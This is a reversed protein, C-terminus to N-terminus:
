QRVELLGSIKLAESDSMGGDITMIALRELQEDSFRQYWDLPFPLAEDKDTGTEPISTVAVAKEPPRIRDEPVAEDSLAARIWSRIDLGNQYAESPDKGLICPWRIAKSGYTASWFGWAAKAGAEDTDLAVLIQEAHQLAEHTIGDPKAQASGMATVGVLDGAEQHVLWGDLESEVIVITKMGKNWAMASTDSGPILVYRPEGEPRRIRLRFLRGDAFCPIVLGTPLWLQKPKGNGQIEAPLGWGDRDLHLDSPNWGLCANRITEDNLGKGHLFTLAQQGPAQWLTQQAMDLFANAKESWSIAPSATERPHFVPQKARGHPRGTYTRRNPGVGAEHCAAVYSLGRFDRLYQIADGNKGCGRCWYRGGKYEPWVRFRDEGGCSPCPGAWEGGHTGSIKVVPCDARILDIITM